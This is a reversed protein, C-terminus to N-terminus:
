SETQQRFIAGANEDERLGFLQSARLPHPPVRVGSPWLGRPKCGRTIAAIRRVRYNTLLRLDSKFRCVKAKCFRQEAM